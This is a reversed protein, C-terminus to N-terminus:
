VAASRSPIPAVDVEDYAQLMAAHAVHGRLALREDAVGEAAFAYRLRQRVGEDGLSKWKLILRSGPTALLIQSWAKIVEPGIKLLDNFSGFTFPRGNM